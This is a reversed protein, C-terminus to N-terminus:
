HKVDPIVPWSAIVAMTIDANFAMLTITATNQFHVEVHLHEKATFTGSDITHTSFTGSALREWSSAM